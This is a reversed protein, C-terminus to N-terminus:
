KNDMNLIHDLKLLSAFFMNKTDTNQERRSQTWTKTKSTSYIVLQDNM